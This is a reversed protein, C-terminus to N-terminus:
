GVVLYFGAIIASAILFCGVVIRTLSASSIRSGGTGGARSLIGGLLLFLLIVVLCHTIWHHGTFGKMFALVAPSKEKATVLLANVLSAAALSVGFAMTQKSLGNHEMM